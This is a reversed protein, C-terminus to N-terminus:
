KKRKLDKPSDAALASQAYGQKMKEICEQKAKEHDVIPKPYDQGIVCKVKVQMQHQMKWPEFIYEAPVHKLVPLYKKIYDGKKDYKKGFAIPSYVRFYQHFFASASLWMWNGANLAWDADLLFDEFVEMGREWSIYLDGRTLFCAVAHRALHHIWGETRLQTMIADIFPFGTKGNKWAEFEPSTDNKNPISWNLQKCIPNNRMQGFNPTLYAATYYFDRWLLQGVLSVPPETHKTNTNEIDALLHYFKRCSLAGFKLYPSLVTTSNLDTPSSNPKEFEIVKQTNSCFSKLRKLAETEGGTHRNFGCFNDVMGVEDITPVGFDGNPGKFPINALLQEDLEGFGTIDDSCKPVKLSSICKRFTEYRIPPIHHNNAIVADPNFLLHGDYEKIRNPDIARVNADREKTYPEYDEEYQIRVNKNNKLIHAIIQVPEGRLVILRSGVARLNKDLNDLCELLFIWRRTGIDKYRKVYNSDFIFICLHKLAKSADLLGANDHLRLAKRFWYIKTPKM